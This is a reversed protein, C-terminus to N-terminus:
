TYVKRNIAMHINYDKDNLDSVIANSESDIGRDELEIIEIKHYKSIRTKYDNILHNLYKEKIKGVCIIKIMNNVM